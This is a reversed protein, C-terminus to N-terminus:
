TRLFYTHLFMSSYWLLLWRVNDSSCPYIHLSNVSVTGARDPVIPVAELGLSHRLAGWVYLMGESSMFSGYLEGTFCKVDHDATLQRVQDLVHADTSLGQIIFVRSEYDRTAVLKTAASCAPGNGEITIIRM